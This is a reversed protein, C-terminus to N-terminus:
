PLAETSTSVDVYFARGPLPFGLLDQGRADFVDAVRASVRVRGEFLDVGAGVGLPTRASLRVLNAPDVFSEGVHMVEVFARVRHVPGFPGVHLEPRAFLTLRPRLPLDRDMRTDRPDVVTVAGSLSAVDSAHIRAGLEAGLIRAEGVNEPIAQYQNNRRYRILDDVFLSFGRLEVHGRVFGIRGRAMVGLDASVSREPRLTTDGVLFARDGFLESVTPVRTGTAISGVVAVGRWPELVLGLRASPALVSADTAAGESGPRIDVLSAHSLELRGSPRVEFRAEGIAGVLRAEAGVAGVHRLSADVRTQALADEPAFSEIRYTAVGALGMWDAVTAEVSARANAVLTRDDTARRGLGIEGYRDTLQSREHSVGAAVRLRWPGAGSREEREFTLGGLYRAFTRRTHRTPQIAPGPVGGTRGYGLAVASLKGDAVDATLHGLAFGEDLHGNDRTVETEDGPVLPTQDAVHPFNGETGNVGAAGTFGVGNADGTSAAVDFARDGFSGTGAHADARAV